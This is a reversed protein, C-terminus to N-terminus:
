FLIKEAAVSLDKKLQKQNVKKSGCNSYFSIRPIIHAYTCTRTSTLLTLIGFLRPETTVTKVAVKQGMSKLSSDSGCLDTVATDNIIVESSKSGRGALTM